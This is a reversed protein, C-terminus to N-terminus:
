LFSLLCIPFDSGSRTLLSLPSPFLYFPFPSLPLLCFLCHSLKFLPNAFETKRELSLPRCEGSTHTYFFPPLYLTAPLTHKTTHSDLHTSSPINVRPFHHLTHYLTHERGQWSSILGSSLKSSSISSSNLLSEKLHALIWHHLRSETSM